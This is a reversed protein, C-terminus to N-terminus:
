YVSGVVVGAAGMAIGGVIAIWPVEDEESLLAGIASTAGWGLLGLAVAGMRVGAESPSSPSFSFGVRAAGPCRDLSNATGLCIQDPTSAGALALATVGVAAGGLALAAGGYIAAGRAVTVSEPTPHTVTLQVTAGPGLEVDREWRPHGPHLLAIRHKGASLPGLRHKGAGLSDAARGDIELTYGGSETTLEIEAPTGWAGLEVLPARLVDLARAVFAKPDTLPVPRADSFLAEADIRADVASEWDEDTRRADHWAGLAKDTDVVVMAGSMRGGESLFSLVVLLRAVPRHTEKMEQAHLAYPRHALAERDYDPRGIRAFCAFSGQCAGVLRPDLRDVHVASQAEIAHALNATLTATIAPNVPGVVALALPM